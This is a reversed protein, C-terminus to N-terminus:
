SQPQWRPWLVAFRRIIFSIRCSTLGYFMFLSHPRFPGQIYSEFAESAFM